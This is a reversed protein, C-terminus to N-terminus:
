PTENEERELMQQWLHQEALRSAAGLTLATYHEVREPHARASFNGFQLCQAVASVKYEQPEGCSVTLCSKTAGGADEDSTVYTTASTADNITSAPTLM